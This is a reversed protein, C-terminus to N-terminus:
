MLTNEAKDDRKLCGFQNLIYYEESFTKQIFHKPVLDFGKELMKREQSFKGMKNDLNM